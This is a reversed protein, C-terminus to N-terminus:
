STGLIGNISGSGFTKKNQKTRDSNSGLTGCKYRAENRRIKFSICLSYFYFNVLNFEARTSIFIINNM